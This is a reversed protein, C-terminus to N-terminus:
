PQLSAALATSESPYVVEARIELSTCERLLFLIEDDLEMCRKSVPRKGRKTMM